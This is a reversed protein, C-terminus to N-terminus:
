VLLIILIVGGLMGVPMYVKWKKVLETRASKLEEEMRRMCIEINRLSEQSNNGFFADGADELIQWAEGTLPFASDNEELLKKWAIRGSQYCNQELLNKLEMLLKKVEVFRAPYEELFDYLRINERELAYHWHAFLRICEEMLAQRKKQMEYWGMLTGACGSLILGIGLLRGM